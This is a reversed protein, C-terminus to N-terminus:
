YYNLKIQRYVNLTNKLLNKSDENIIVFDALKIKEENPIQNKIKQLVQLRSLHDRKMVREIAINLSTSVVVIVDLEEQLQAEFILASEKVLYKLNKNEQCWKKFDDKVAPHVLHNLMQLLEPANFIKNSVYQRDLNGNKDYSGEGLLKIIQEKIKHQNNMLWKAREDSYYVPWGLQEFISCVTTKGSGINGTVGIKVM